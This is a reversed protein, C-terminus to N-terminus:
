VFNAINNTIIYHSKCPLQYNSISPTMSIRNNYLKYSWENKDLPLVTETGCGCLCKHSAIGYEDSIYIVNEEMEHDLPIYHVKKFKVNVKKITKMLLLNVNKLYAM